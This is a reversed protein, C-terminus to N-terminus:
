RFHRFIMTDAIAAIMTDIAFAAYDFRCRLLTAAYDAAADLM